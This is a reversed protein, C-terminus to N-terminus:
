RSKCGAGDANLMPSSFGRPRRVFLRKVHAGSRFLVPVPGFLDGSSLLRDIEARAAQPIPEADYTNPALSQDDPTM